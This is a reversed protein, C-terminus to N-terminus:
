KRLEYEAIRGGNFMAIRSWVRLLLSASAVAILAIGLHMATDRKGALAADIAVSLRTDFWYQCTQYAGLLLVGVGYRAAHRRFQAWLGIPIEAAPTDPISLM